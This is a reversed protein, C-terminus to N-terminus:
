VNINKLNLELVNKYDNWHIPSGSDGVPEANYKARYAQLTEWIALIDEKAQLEADTYYETCYERIAPENVECIGGVLSLFPVRLSSFKSGGLENYYGRPLTHVDMQYELNSLFGRTGDDFNKMAKDIEAFKVADPKTDKFNELVENQYKARITHFSGGVLAVFDEQTIADEGIFYCNRCATILNNLDEKFSECDALMRNYRYEEFHKVQKEASKNM